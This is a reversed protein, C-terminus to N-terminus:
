PVDPSLLGYAKADIFRGDKSYHKRLHGEIQFGCKELVRGSAANFAFTHAVVKALGLNQFAHCCVARVAAPMIGRGWYSKALVYGIEARHTQGIILGDFGVGGIVLGAPTRIAWNVPQGNPKTAAAVIALWTEADAATYPHPIRLTRDYIDKDGVWDLLVDRDIPRFETLEFGNEVDLHM